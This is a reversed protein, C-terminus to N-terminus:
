RRRRHEPEQYMQAHGVCRLDAGGRRVAAVGARGAIGFHRGVDSGDLLVLPMMSRGDARHERSEACPWEVQEVRQVEADARDDAAPAVCPSFPRGGEAGGLEFEAANAVVAAGRPRGAGYSVLRQRPLELREFRLLARVPGEKEVEGAATKEGPDQIAGGQDEGVM